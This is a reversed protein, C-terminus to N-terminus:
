FRQASLLLCAMRQSAETLDTLPFIDQDDSTQHSKTFLKSLLYGEHSLINSYVATAKNFVRAAALNAYNLNRLTEYSWTAGFCCPFPHNPFFPVCNPPLWSRSKAAFRLPRFSFTFAKRTKHRPSIYAWINTPLYNIKDILLVVFLIRLSFIVSRLSFFVFRSFKATDLSCIELLFASQFNCM